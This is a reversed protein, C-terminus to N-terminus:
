HQKHCDDNLVTLCLFVAHAVYLNEVKLLM